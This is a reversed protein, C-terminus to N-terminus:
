SFMSRKAPNKSALSSRLYSRTRFHIKGKGSRFIKCTEDFTIAPRIDSKESFASYIEFSSERVNKWMTLTLLNM